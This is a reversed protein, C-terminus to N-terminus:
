SGVPLATLVGDLPWDSGAWGCFVMIVGGAPYTLAVTPLVGDASVALNRDVPHGPSGNPYTFPNVHSVAYCSTSSRMTLSGGVQYTGAPVTVVLVEGSSPGTQPTAVEHAIIAQAPPPAVCTPAGTSDVGNQLQGAPCSQGSRAFTPVNNIQTFDVLGGGQAPNPAKLALLFASFQGQSVLSSLFAPDLKAAGISNDALQPGGVAGLALKNSTVAYTQLQDPGVAGLALKEATVALKQLQDPGVAGLALKETSVALDHLQPNDVAGTALKQATVALDHLQDTNVAGLALKGVTVALDHLQDTNVAGLALKLTTVALDHLQLTDVAGQALKQATVALDHLQDSNVAGLALKQTTVALDVIKGVAVSLDALQPTSVSGGSLDASNVCGPPRLITWGVCTAGAVTFSTSSTATGTPTSVTVTGSSALLPVTAVLQSDNNVQFTAPMGNFSVKNAGAFGIGSITVLTGAAGSSPNFTVISAATTGAGSAGTPALTLGLLSATALLAAFARMRRSVLARVGVSIPRV